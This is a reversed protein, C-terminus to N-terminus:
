SNAKIKIDGDTSMEILLKDQYSHGQGKENLKPNSHSHGDKNLEPTQRSKFTM